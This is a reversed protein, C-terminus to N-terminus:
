YGNYIHKEEGFPFFQTVDILLLVYHITLCIVNVGTLIIALLAEEFLSYICGKPHLM